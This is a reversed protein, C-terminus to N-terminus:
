SLSHPIFFGRYSGGNGDITVTFSPDSNGITINVPNSSNNVIPLIGNLQINMPYDFLIQCDDPGTNLTENMANLCYRLDGSTASDRTGSSGPNYDTPITVHFTTVAFLSHSSLLFIWSKYM